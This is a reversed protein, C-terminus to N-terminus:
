IIGMNKSNDATNKHSGSDEDIIYWIFGALLYGVFAYATIVSIWDFSRVIIAVLPGFVVPGLCGVSTALTMMVARKEPPFLDISAKLIMLFSFATSPTYNQNEETSLWRTTLHLLTSKWLWITKIPISYKHRGLSRLSSPYLLPPLYYGPTVRGPRQCPYSHPTGPLVPPSEQIQTILLHPFITHLVVVRVRVCVMFSFPVM